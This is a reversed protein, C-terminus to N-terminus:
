IIDQRQGKTLKFPNGAWRGKTHSLSEIFNVGPAAAEAITLRAM